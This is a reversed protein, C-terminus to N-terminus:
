RIIYKLDVRQCVVQLDLIKLLKLFIVQNKAPLSLLMIVTIRGDQRFASRWGLIIEFQLLVFALFFFLAGKACLISVLFTL